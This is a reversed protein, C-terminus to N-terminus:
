LIQQIIGVFIERLEKGNVLFYRTVFLLSLFAFFEICINRAFIRYINGSFYRRIHVAAFIMSIVRYFFGLVACGFLFAIVEHNLWFPDIETINM